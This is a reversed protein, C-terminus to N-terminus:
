SDEGADELRAWRFPYASGGAVAVSMLHRRHVTQPHSLADPVSLVPGSPVDAEKMADLWEAVTRTLMVPRLIGDLVSKNKLRAAFNVFREDDILDPRGIAYCYNRWFRQTFPAIVFDGDLARFANYPYITPHSTGLRAPVLGSAFYSVAMYSLMAVSADYVPVEVTPVPRGQLAAYRAALAGITAFAGSVAAPLDVGPVSPPGGAEGTVDLLGTAAATIVSSVPRRSGDPFSHPQVRVTATGSGSPSAAPPSASDLYCVEPVSDGSTRDASVSAGLAALLGRVVDMERSRGRCLFRETALPAQGATARSSPADADSM